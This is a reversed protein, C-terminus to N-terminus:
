PTLSEIVTWGTDEIGASVQNYLDDSSALCLVMNDKSAVLANSATVCVWRDWDVNAAFDQAVADISSEDEVTAIMCSFAIATMMPTCSTGAIIGDTKTLGMMSTFYDDVPVDSITFMDLPEANSANLIAELAAQAEPNVDGLVVPQPVYVPLDATLQQFYAEMAAYADRFSQPITGGYNASISSEDEFAVYMSAFALGDEYVEDGAMAMCGSKELEATLGEMVSLDLDGIKKEAGAYEVHAQGMDDDFATLSVMSGDDECISLQIYMATGVAVADSSPADPAETSEQTPETSESPTETSETPTTTTETHESESGCAACSLMLLLALVLALYKRM